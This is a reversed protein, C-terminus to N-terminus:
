KSIVKVRNLYTYRRDRFSKRSTVTGKIKVVGKLEEKCYFEVLKTRDGVAAMYKFSADKHGYFDDSEPIETTSIIEVELDLRKKLEGFHETKHDLEEQAKYIPEYLFKRTGKPVCGHKVFFDCVSSKQAKWIAIMEEETFLTYKFLNGFVTEQCYDIGAAKVQEDDDLKEVSSKILEVQSFFEGLDKGVFQKVCSSAVQKITGDEHKIIFTKNRQRNTNCHECTMEQPMYEDNTCVLNGHIMFVEAVVTWGNFSPTDGDLILEVCPLPYVDTGTYYARGEVIFNNVQVTKIVETRSQVTITSINLKNLKNLKKMVEQERYAAILLRM